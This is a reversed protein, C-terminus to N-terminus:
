TKMPSFCSDWDHLKLWTSRCKKEARTSSAAWKRWNSSPTNDTGLWKSRSRLGSVNAYSPLWFTRRQAQKVNMLRISTKSGQLFGVIESVYPFNSNLIQWTFPKNCEFVENILWQRRRLVIAAFTTFQEQSRSEVVAKSVADAVPGLFKGDMNLFMNRIDQPIKPHDWGLSRVLMVLSPTFLTKEKEQLQNFYKKLFAVALTVEGSEAIGAALKQCLLSLQKSDHMNRIFQYYGLGDDCLLKRLISISISDRTLIAPFAATFGMLSLINAIDASASWMVVACCEIQEGHMWMQGLSKNDPNLFNIRRASVALEGSSMMEGTLSYWSVDMTKKGSSSRLHAFYLKLQEDPPLLINTDRIIKVRDRDVDCLAACGGVQLQKKTTSKALMLALIEGEDVSKSKEGREGNENTLKKIADALEMQMQKTTTKGLSAQPPLYLSYVVVLRYGSKVEEVTCFAGPASAVYHPRFAATSNAADFEYRTTNLGDEKSVMLAGGTYESPLQVELTAVCHEVRPEQHNEVRGGSGCLVVKSLVPQLAVDKYRFKEAIVTCLTEIGGIWESNQINLQYSPFVWTANGEHIGKAVLKEAMEDRIPLSVTGIDTVSLGPLVPLVYAVGGFSIEGRDPAFKGLISSIEQCAKGRPVFVDNSEGTMHFPWLERSVVGSSPSEMNGRPERDMHKQGERHFRFHQVEVPTECQSLKEIIIIEPEERPRKTGTTAATAAAASSANSEAISIAGSVAGTVGTARATNIASTTTKTDAALRNLQHIESRFRHIDQTKQTFKGAQKTVLVYADRGRGGVTMKLPAKIKEKLLAMRKHAEDPGQFCRVQYSTNPRLLNRHEPSSSASVCKSLAKVVPGLIKAELRALINGVNRFVQPNSCAIALKWLLAVDSSTVLEKPSIGFAIQAKQVAVITLSASVPALDILVDALDVLLIDESESIAQCLNKCCALSVPTKCITQGSSPLAHKENEQGFPAAHGDGYSNNLAVVAAIHPPIEALGHNDQDAKYKLLMRLRAFDVPSDMFVSDAAAAEGMFQHTNRIDASTPWGVIAFREYRYVFEGDGNKWLQSLTEKGPNLFNFTTTWSVSIPSGDGLKEGRISYWTATRNDNNQDGTLMMIKDALEMRLLDSGNSGRLFPLEPPLCLSYVLMLSFGNTVEEVTYFAGATYLVYHPRFAAMEKNGGLTYRFKNKTGEENVVVNGGLGRSPLQVVLKAICRDNEDPDQQLPLSGGEEIVMLKSLVIKMTVGKYGMRAASLESLTELGASWEPNRMEVQDGPLTWLKKGQKTCFKLLKECNDRQLPLSIFAEDGKLAVGPMVPLTKAAGGFSYEGAQHTVGSLLESIGQCAQRKPVLVDHPAGIAHFPWSDASGAGAPTWTSYPPNYLAANCERFSTQQLNADDNNKSSDPKVFWEM